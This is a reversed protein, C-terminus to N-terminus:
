SRPISSEYSLNQDTYILSSTVTRHHIVSLYTSLFVVIESSSHILGTMKNTFQVDTQAIGDICSPLQM